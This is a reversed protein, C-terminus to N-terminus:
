MNLTSPPLVCISLSLSHFLVQSTVLYSNTPDRPSVNQRAESECLSQLRQGVMAKCASWSVDNYDGGGEKELVLETSHLSVTAKFEIAKALVAVSYGSDRSELESRQTSEQFSGSSRRTSESASSSASGRRQTSTMSGRRSIHRLIPPTPPWRVSKSKELGCLLEIEIDSKNFMDNDFSSELAAANAISNLDNMRSRLTNAYPTLLLMYFHNINDTDLVYSPRDALKCRMAALLAVKAVECTEIDGITQTSPLLNLQSKIMGRKLLFQMDLACTVVNLRLDWTSGTTSSTDLVRSPWLLKWRQYFNDDSLGGAGVENTQLCNKETNPITITTIAIPKILLFQLARRPYPCHSPGISLPHTNPSSCHRDSKIDFTFSLTNSKVHVIILNDVVSLEISMEEDDIDLSLLDLTHTHLALDKPSMRYLQISRSQTLIRAIYTEHYLFM